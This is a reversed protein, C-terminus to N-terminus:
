FKTMAIDTKVLEFCEVKVEVEEFIIRFKIFQDFYLINGARKLFNLSHLTLMTVSLARLCDDCCNGCSNRLQEVSMLNLGCHCLLRRM